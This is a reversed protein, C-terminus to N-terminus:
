WRAKALQRNKSMSLIVTVIQAINEALLPPVAEGIQARVESVNGKFIFTDPFTQM